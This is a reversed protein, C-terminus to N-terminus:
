GALQAETEALGYDVLQRLRYYIFGFDKVESEFLKKILRNGALEGQWIEERLFDNRAQVYTILQDLVVCDRQLEEDIFFIRARDDRWEKEPHKQLFTKLQEDLATFLDRVWILGLKGEVHDVVEVDYTLLYAQELDYVKGKDANFYSDDNNPTSYNGYTKEIDNIWIMDYKLGVSDLECLLAFPLTILGMFTIQLYIEGDPEPQLNRYRVHIDNVDGVGWKAMTWVTTTSVNNDSTLRWLEEVKAKSMEGQILTLIKEHREKVEHPMPVAREFDFHTARSLGLLRDNVWRSEGYLMSFVERDKGRFFLSLTLPNNRRSYGVKELTAM